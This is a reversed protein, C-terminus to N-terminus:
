SRQCRPLNGEVKFDSNKHFLTDWCIFVDDVHVLIYVILTDYKDYWLFFSPDSKSTVGGIAKIFAQVWSNWKLPADSLGYVCKKLQCIHREKWNAESPAKIYVNRSISEGQLFATKIDIAQLHM